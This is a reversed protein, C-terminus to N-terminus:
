AGQWAILPNKAAEVRHGKILGPLSTTQCDQLHVMASFLFLLLLLKELSGPLLFM